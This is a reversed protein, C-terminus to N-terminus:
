EAIASLLEDIQEDTAPPDCYDLIPVHYVFLGCDRYFELLGFELNEEYDGLEEDLLCIISKIDNDLLEVVWEGVSFESISSGYCPRSSRFLDDFVKQM